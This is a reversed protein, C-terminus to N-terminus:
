NNHKEEQSGGTQPIPLNMGAGEEITRNANRSRVLIVGSIIIIAILTPLIGFEDGVADPDGFEIALGMIKDLLGISLLIFPFWSYQYRNTGRLYWVVAIIALLLIIVDDAKDMLENETFLEAIVGIGLVALFGVMLLNNGRNMAEKISKPM